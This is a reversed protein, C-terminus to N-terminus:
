AIMSKALLWPYFCPRMCLFVSLLHALWASEGTHTDCRTGGSKGSQWAPRTAATLQQSAPFDHASGQLKPDVIHHSSAIDAHTDTHVGPLSIVGVACVYFQTQPWHYLQVAAICPQIHPLM